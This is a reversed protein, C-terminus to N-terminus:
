QMAACTLSAAHARFEVYIWAWSVGAHRLENWVHGIYRHLPQARERCFIALLRWERRVDCDFDPRGRVVPTVEIEFDRTIQRRACDENEIDIRVRARDGRVVSGCDARIPVSFGELM